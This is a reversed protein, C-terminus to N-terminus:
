WLLARPYPRGGVRVIEDDAVPECGALIDPRLLCAYPEDPFEVFPSALLRQERDAALIPRLQRPYPNAIRDLAMRPSVPSWRTICRGEIVFLRVTTSWVTAGSAGRRGRTIQVAYVFGDDSAAEELEPTDVVYSALWGVAVRQPRLPTLTDVITTVIEGAVDEVFLPADLFAMPGHEDSAIALTGPLGGCMVAEETIDEMHQDFEDEDMVADVADETTPLCSRLV